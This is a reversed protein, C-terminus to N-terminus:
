YLKCIVKMLGNVIFILKVVKNEYHILNIFWMNIDQLIHILLSNFQFIGWLLTLSFYDKHFREPKLVYIKFVEKKGKLIYEEGFQNSTQNVMMYFYVLTWHFFVFVNTTNCILFFFYIDKLCLASDVTNRYVVIIQDGM